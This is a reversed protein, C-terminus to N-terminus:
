FDFLFSNYHVEMFNHFQTIMRFMLKALSINGRFRFATICFLHDYMIILSIYLNQLPYCIRGLNILTYMPTVSLLLSSLMVLFLHVLNSHSSHDEM